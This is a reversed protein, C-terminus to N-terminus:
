RATLISLIYAPFLLGFTRWKWQLGWNLGENCNSLRDFYINIIISNVVFMGIWKEDSM